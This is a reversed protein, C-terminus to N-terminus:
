SRQNRSQSMWDNPQSLVKRYVAAVGGIVCSQAGYKAIVIDTNECPWQLARQCVVEEIIPLLIKEAQSLIGGIVVRKPNLANILNAIGIGLWFGTDELARLALQDGNQAAETIMKITLKTLDGNTAEMLSSSTGIAIAERVRRFVANQSAVTEWCGSNGCNCRLGTPDVTMHGFEGAFGASGTMLQGNLVVGGGLGIGSVIYLIFDYDQGAGFYTEGLAALNAENDVYVPLHFHNEMWEGIPVDRWGLNPAFLLTGTHANVLGPLGLGIGFIPHNQQSIAMQFDQIIDTARNLIADQNAMLGITSEQHERCINAAFDTAIVNIFDVGIEAGIICGADPNLGLKNSPRGVQNSSSDIGLEMVYNKALLEKILSSVTAKQLGTLRAIEARSIVKHQRLTNLVLALNMERMTTHDVSSQKSM